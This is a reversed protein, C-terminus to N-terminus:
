NTLEVLIVGEAIHLLEEADFFGILCFYVQEKEDLWVIASSVNPDQSIYLQGECGHVQIESIEYEADDTELVFSMGQNMGGFYLLLEKEPEDAKKYVATRRLVMAEPEMLGMSEYGIFEYGKPIYTLKYDSLQKTNEEKFMFISYNKLIEKTWSWVSARAEANIGLFVSVGVVLAFVAAMACKMGTYFSRKRKEKKSLINMEKEFEHSFEHPPLEKPITSLKVDRVKAAAERLADESFFQEKM